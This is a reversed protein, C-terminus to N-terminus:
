ISFKIRLSKNLYSFFKWVVALLQNNLHYASSFRSSTSGNGSLFKL